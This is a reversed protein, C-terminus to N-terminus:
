VAVQDEWRVAASCIMRGGELGKGLRLPNDPQPELRRLVRGAPLEWLTLVDGAASLGRKGDPSLAVFEVRFGKPLHGLLTRVEERAALDYVVMAETGTVLARRGDASV